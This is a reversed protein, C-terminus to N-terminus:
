TFMYIKFIIFCRFVIGETLSKCIRSFEECDKNINELTASKESFVDFTMCDVMTKEFMSSPFKIEVFNATKSLVINHSEFYVAVYMSVLFISMYLM